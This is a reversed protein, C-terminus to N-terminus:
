KGLVKSAFRSSALLLRINEPNSSFYSYLLMSFTGPLGKPAKKMFGIHRGIIATMKWSCSNLAQILDCSAPNKPIAGQIHASYCVLLSQYDRQSLFDSITDLISAM